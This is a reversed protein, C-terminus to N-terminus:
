AFLIKPVNLTSILAHPCLNTLNQVSVCAAFNTTLIFANIYRWPELHCQEFTSICLLNFFCLLFALTFIYLFIDMVFIDVYM